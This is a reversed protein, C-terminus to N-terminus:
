GGTSRNHWWSSFMIAGIIVLIALLSIILVSSIWAALTAIVIIFINLIGIGMLVGIFHASLIRAYIASIFLILDLLFIILLLLLTPTMFLANALDRFGNAIPNNTNSIPLGGYTNNTQNQSPNTTEIIGTGTTICSGYAAGNLTVSFPLDITQGQNTQNDLAILRLIGNQITTNAVFQFNFISGSQSYASFNTDQQNSNGYYLIAKASVPFLNLYSRPTITVGVLTTLNWVSNLCPNVTYSEIQTPPIIFNDSIYVVNTPTMAILDYYPSYKGNIPSIIANNLGSPYLFTFKLDGNGLFVNPNGDLSLIGQPTIFDTTYAGNRVLNNVNLGHSLTNRGSVIFGNSLNTTQLLYTDSYTLPVGYDTAAIILTANNYSFGAMCYNSRADNSFVKCQFANSIEYVDPSWISSHLKQIQIADNLFYGSGIYPKSNKVYGFAFTNSSQSNYNDGTLPPTVESISGTDLSTYSYTKIGTSNYIIFGEQFTNSSGGGPVFKQIFSFLFLDYGSITEKGIDMLNPKLFINDAPANQIYFSSIAHGGPTNDALSFNQWYIANGSDTIVINVCNGSTSCHFNGESGAINVNLLNYLTLTSDYVYIKSATEVILYNNGNYPQVAYHIVSDPFSITSMLDLQSSNYIKLISGSAAFTERINDNNIDYGIASQNKAGNATDVYTLPNGNNAYYTSTFLSNQAQPAINSYAGDTFGEYNYNKLLSISYASVSFLILFAMLILKKM